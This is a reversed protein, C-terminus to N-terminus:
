NLNKRTNPKVINEFGCMFTYEDFVLQFDEDLKLYKDYQKGVYMILKLVEKLDYIDKIVIKKIDYTKHNNYFTLDLRFNPFNRERVLYVDYRLNSLFMIELLAEAQSLSQQEMVKFLNNAINELLEDCLIPDSKSKFLRKMARIQDGFLQNYDAKLKNIQEKSWHDFRV